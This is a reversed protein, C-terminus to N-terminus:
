FFCIIWIKLFKNNFDIKLTETTIVKKKRYVCENIKNNWWVDMTIRVVNKMFELDHLLINCFWVKMLNQMIQTKLKEKYICVCMYIYIYTHTHTHTHTHTYTNTHWWWWWWTVSYGREGGRGLTWQKRYTKLVVKWIPVSSSYTPELQDDQRQEDIHLPCCSYMVQSSSGVEGATDRMDPEDLKSLKRSPSYTATCCSSSPTSGGPSTCYQQCCEQTAETLRKRM